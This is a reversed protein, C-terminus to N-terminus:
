TEVPTPAASNNMLYTMYTRLHNVAEDFPRISGAAASQMVAGEMITLVFRALGSYDTDARFRDSAQRLRSEVALSWAKFNEDLLTRVEEGPDSVELALRGIPCAFHFDSEVLGSRYGDLICFVQEIPDSSRDVAPRVIMPDLLDLYSDLVACLVDEKGGFFYYLSGSGTDSHDLIDSVSTAGYGRRWFLDRAASVIRSRTDM